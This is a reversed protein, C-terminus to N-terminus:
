SILISRRLMLNKWNLTLLFMTSRSSIEEGDTALIEILDHISEGADEQLEAVLEVAEEELVVQEQEEQPEVVPAADDSAKEKPPRVGFKQWWSPKKERSKRM